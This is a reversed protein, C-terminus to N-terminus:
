PCLGAFTQATVTWLQNDPLEAPSYLQLLSRSIAGSGDWAQGSSSPNVTAATSVDWHWPRDWGPLYTLRSRPSPNRARALGRALRRPFRKQEGPVSARWARHWRSKCERRHTTLLAEPGAQSHPQEPPVSLGASPEPKRDWPAVPTQFLQPGSAPWWM